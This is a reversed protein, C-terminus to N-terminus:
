RLLLLQETATEFTDVVLSVVDNSCELLSALPQLRFRGNGRCNTLTSFTGVNTKDDEDDDDDDGSFVTRSRKFSEIKRPLLNALTSLVGTSVVTCFGSTFNHMTSFVLTLFVNRSAGDEDVDFDVDSFSSFRLSKSRLRSAAM